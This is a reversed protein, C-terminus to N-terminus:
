NDEAALIPDYELDRIRHMSCKGDMFHHLCALRGNHSCQIFADGGCGNFQCKLSHNFEFQNEQVMRPPPGIRLEEDVFNPDTKRWSYRIMDRYVRSSFQDWMFSHMRIIGERSTINRLLDLYAAREMIRKTFKKYQRNFTTDLPQLDSTTHKPITLVQVKNQSLHNIIHHNKQGSWSDFLLLVDNKSSQNSADEHAFDDAPLTGITDDPYIDTDGDDPQMMEQKAPVLVEDIWSVMLDRSMKGSTSAYVKINGLKRELARVRPGVIPGFSGGPEQLCLLIKGVTMGDRSVMPQSTYSHTIRNKSDVNVITDREGRWSLTRKNIVEYNFGTQDMNWILRRPYFVETLAFENRFAETSAAIEEAREQEARSSYETIARSVIGHKKKFALVWTRSAKFFRTINLEAAKLRAWNQINHDHVPLLRRRAEKVQDLVYETTQKMRERTSVGAEACREFNELFSPSYWPYKAKITKTTAGRRVMSIIYRQTQDSITRRGASIAGLECYDQDAQKRREPAPPQDDDNMYSYREQTMFEILRQAALNLPPSIRCGPDSLRPRQLLEVMRRSVKLAEQRSLPGDILRACFNRQEEDSIRDEGTCFRDMDDEDDVTDMPFEQLTCSDNSIPGLVKLLLSLLLLNPLM